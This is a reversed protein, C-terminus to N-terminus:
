RADTSNISAALRRGAVLTCGAEAWDLQRGVEALVEVRDAPGFTLHGPGAAWNYARVELEEGLRDPCRVHM